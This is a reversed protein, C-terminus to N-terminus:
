GPGFGLPSAGEGKRRNRSLPGHAKVDRIIVDERLKQKRRQYIQEEFESKWKDRLRLVEAPTLRRGRVWALAWSAVDKLLSYLFGPLPVM